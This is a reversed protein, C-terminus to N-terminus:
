KKKNKRKKIKRKPIRLQPKEEIQKNNKKSEKISEKIYKFIKFLGMVLAILIVITMPSTLFYYKVLIEPLRKKFLFYIISRIIEFIVLTICGCGINEKDSM